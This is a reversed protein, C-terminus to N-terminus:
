SADDDLREDNPPTRVALWAILLANLLVVVGVAVAVYIWV